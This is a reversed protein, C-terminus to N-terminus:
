RFHGFTKIKLQSGAGAPSNIRIIRIYQGLSVGGEIRSPVQDGGGTFFAPQVSGAARVRTPAIKYPLTNCAM